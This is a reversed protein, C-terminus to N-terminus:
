SCVEGFQPPSTDVVVANTVVSSQLGANNWLSVTVYSSLGDSTAVTERVFSEVTSSSGIDGGGPYTGTKISAGGVVGSEPDAASWTASYTPTTEYQVDGGIEGEGGSYTYELAYLGARAAQLLPPTTDIIFGNSTSELIRNCGTVGRVTIFLPQNGYQDLGPLLVQLILLSLSSPFIFPLTQFSILYHQHSFPIFHSTPGDVVACMNIQKISNFCESIHM